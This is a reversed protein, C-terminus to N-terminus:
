PINSGRRVVGVGVGVDFSFGGYGLCNNSIHGNNPMQIIEKDTVTYVIPSLEPHRFVGTIMLASPNLFSVRLLEADREDYVILTSEDPRKKRVNSSVWFEGDHISAVVRGEPGFVRLTKIELYGSTKERDIVLMEDKKMFLAVHPFQIAWTVNTSGLFIGLAGVPKVCGRPLNPTAINAPILVGENRSLDVKLSTPQNIIDGIHGININGGSSNIEPSNKGKGSPSSAKSTEQEDATTVRDRIENLGWVLGVAGIAAVLAAVTAQTAFSYGHSQASWVVGMSGFTIAAIWVFNRAAQFRAAVMAVGAAIASITAVVLLVFESLHM